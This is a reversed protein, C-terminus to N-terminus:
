QTKIIKFSILETKNQLIKLIYEAPIYNAFPIDTETDNILGRLLLRGNSDYLLYQMDPTEISSVKVTVFEIAPNPYATIEYNIGGPEFIGTVVLSSQQFGQTLITSTGSYTETVPEGITYSISGSSNIFHDGDTAVVEQAVLGSPRILLIFVASLLFIWWLGTNTRPRTM